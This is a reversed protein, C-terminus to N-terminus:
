LVLRTSELKRQKGGRPLARGRLKYNTLTNHVVEAMRPPPDFAFPM